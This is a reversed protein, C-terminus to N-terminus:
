AKTRERRALNKSKFVVVMLIGWVTLLFGTYNMVNKDILDNGFVLDISSHFIACILISGESSNYLWSLLISGIILSFFWGLVGAMDMSVFGPRYFFLPLHWVAWLFSLILSSSLANFKKQLRPLAFGRWGTEEGFGFFILNYTFYQAYSFHPFEKQHFFNKLNLPAKDIM